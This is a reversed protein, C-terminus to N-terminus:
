LLGECGQLEKLFRRVDGEYGRKPIVEVIECWGNGEDFYIVDLYKGRAMWARNGYQPARQHYKACRIIENLKVARVEM